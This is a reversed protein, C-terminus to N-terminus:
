SKKRCKKCIGELVVKKNLVKFQKNLEQPVPINDYSKNYFDIIANCKLCRLHHHNKTHPDFRRKEGYGEVLRIIGLESFSLLTRYVTDFSIHPFDKKIRKYIDDSSPHDKAKSLEKYIAIRQHTIKLGNETCKQKFQKLSLSPHDDFM